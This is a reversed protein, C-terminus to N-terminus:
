QGKEDRHQISSTFDSLPSRKLRSLWRNVDFCKPAILERSDLAFRTKGISTWLPVLESAQYFQFVNLFCTREKAMESWSLLSGNRYCWLLQFPLMWYEKCSHWEWLLLLDPRQCCDLTSSDTLLLLMGCWRATKCPETNDQSWYWRCDLDCGVNKLFHFFKIHHCM